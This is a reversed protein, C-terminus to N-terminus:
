KYIDKLGEYLARVITQQMNELSVMLRNFPQYDTDPRTDIRKLTVLWHCDAKDETRTNNEIRMIAFKNIKRAQEWCDWAMRIDRTPSKHGYSPLCFTRYAWEDLFDLTIEDPPPM